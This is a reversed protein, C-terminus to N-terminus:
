VDVVRCSGSECIQVQNKTARLEKYTRNRGRLWFSENGVFDGLHAPRIDVLAVTTTSTSTALGAEARVKKVVLDRGSIPEDIKRLLSNSRSSDSSSVDATAFIGTVSRTGAELGVITDLLGVFLFPHQLIEVAFSHCTQRALIRYEDDELLSSLRLLNRAIVGNISPTASETGTKLRLLPGPMGPTMTSPTSYYGAPTSGTFALFNQNLYRQLQEAFQLYSDDFTTEYMDILGNIMYAYDDAFGPTTGKSGDRYIRWLKGTPKDFLSDKIFSIARAAAERCQLAKSSEIEEFLASCKALAGIALGNWSVIIKDDLDPRVRTRERYERLKQRGSRIIRVVEDEGLGFEKALKSPTVKVSLVNQNMFEDHPDNEPAVNGDPLVGWHRACVGADRHGLVQTLEKLTWVYYAGERKETDNPSPLSDADESSYFGGTPAQIPATTLYTALDYVAGLLEPDHTIKFADVYIDLLQAQDYLMKEFHPLSWDKTVSYRAFGHGIHDRIGGRAMNILTSVAMATAKECEDEGVIDSAASPYKGLRLLFGLNAPTPFKPARSFGGYVPDYRSAFHQYAEELLEVDLDEDAERDGHQSHTGEEAFERLQRTIEKASERCRQQQTQWVDRLKELIEILGLTDDGIHTSTNPGPWYTGGFVPELDPTLFVNLPWGGSGTTAQVYNMYVDDIDPREERDVKIPIFSENLISAVEQSMFSEKEMVHCWHCASYGISLFVLRNSKRAMDIAEADWLQWAVPNNMHGRVYPSRSEHLRNVLKSGTETLGEHTHVHMDSPAAM